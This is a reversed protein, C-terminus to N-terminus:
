TRTKLEMVDGGRSFGHGLYLTVSRPSPWLVVRDLRNARCWDLAIGLLRTGTGGRASVKVYLNSLYAIHEPESDAVPNPIKHVTQLWVQGVIASQDIAAWARWSGGTSLERRMWEGCRRVFADHPETPPDQASRFEWRLEALAEADTVEAIRIQIM